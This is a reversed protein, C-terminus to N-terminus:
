PDAPTVTLRLSGAYDGAPAAQLVAPAITVDLSANSGGGCDVAQRDGVFRTSSPVGSVLEAADGSRDRFWVSYPLTRAGDVLVFGPGDGTAIVQYRGTNAYVCVEDSDTLNQEVGKGIKPFRLPDLGSLKVTPPIDLSMGSFMSSTADLQGDAAIAMPVACSATALAAVALSHLVSM